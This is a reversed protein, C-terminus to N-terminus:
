SVVKHYHPRHEDTSAISIDDSVVAAPLKMFKYIACQLVNKEMKEKM